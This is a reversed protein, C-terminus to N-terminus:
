WVAAKTREQKKREKKGLMENDTDSLTMSGWVLLVPSLDRQYQPYSM